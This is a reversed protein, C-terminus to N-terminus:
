EGLFYLDFDMCLGLNAIRRVLDESLHFGPTFDEYYIACMIGAEYRAAVSTVAEHRAELLQLLAELHDEIHRDLDLPIKLVWRSHNRPAKPTPEGKIWAETPEVGMMDTVTAIDDGFEFVCFAVHNRDM